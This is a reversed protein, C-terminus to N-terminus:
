ILHAVAIAKVTSPGLKKNWEDYFPPLGGWRSEHPDVCSMYMGPRMWMMFAAMCSSVGGGDEPDIECGGASCEVVAHLVPQSSIKRMADFDCPDGARGGWQSYPGNVTPGHKPLSALMNQSTNLLWRHAENFEASFSATFNWCSRLAGGGNCLTSTGDANANGINTGWGHDAFSVM